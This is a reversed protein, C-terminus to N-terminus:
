QIEGDVFNAESEKQGNEYWTIVKGHPKGDVYNVETKKQGNEYWSNWLGHEKGDVYNIEAAKQGNEDWATGLGHRKGDVYNVETKKQGNEYFVQATGTFPNSANVQYNLGDRKQLQGFDVVKTCGVLLIVALLVYVKLTTKM